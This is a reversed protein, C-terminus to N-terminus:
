FRWFWDNLLSKTYNDTDIISFEGYDNIFDKLLKKFKDYADRVEKERDARQLAFEAKRRDEEEKKAARIEANLCDFHKKVEDRQKELEEITFKQKSMIDNGEIM